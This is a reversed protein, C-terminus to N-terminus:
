LEIGRIEMFERIYMLASRMRTKVTGEPCKLMQSIAPFTLGGFVKLQLVERQPAPLQDIVSFLIQSEEDRIAHDAPSESQAAHSALLSASGADDTTESDLRTRVKGQKRYHDILRHNAITFIWTSLDTSRDDFCNNRAARFIALMVEQTLEEATHYDRQRSYFYTVLRDSYRDVFHDFWDLDGHALQKLVTLDDPAESSPLVAQQSSSDTVASPSRDSGSTHEQDDTNEMAKRVQSHLCVGM